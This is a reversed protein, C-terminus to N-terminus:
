IRSGAQHRLSHCGSRHITDIALVLQSLMGRLRAFDPGFRARLADLPAEKLPELSFAIDLAGVFLEHARPVDAGAAALRRFMEYEHVVVDPNSSDSRPVEKIWVREGLALDLAEFTRSMGDSMVHLAGVFRARGKFTAERWGGTTRKEEM